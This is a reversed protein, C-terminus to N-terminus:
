LWRLKFAMLDEPTRFKVCYYDCYYDFHPIEEVVTKPINQNIWIMVYIPKKNMAKLAVHYKGGRFWLSGILSNRVKRMNDRPGPQSRPRSPTSWADGMIPIWQMM